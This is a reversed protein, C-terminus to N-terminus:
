ELTARLNIPANRSNDSLFDDVMSPYNASKRCGTAAFLCARLWKSLVGHLSTKWGVDCTSSQGTRIVRMCRHRQVENLLLQNTDQQRSNKGFQFPHKKDHGHFLKIWTPSHTEVCIKQPELLLHPRLHATYTVETRLFRAPKFM